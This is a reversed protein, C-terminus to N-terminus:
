EEQPEPGERREALTLGCECRSEIYHYNPNEPDPRTTTEWIHQHQSM